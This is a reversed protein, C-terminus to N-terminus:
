HVASFQIGIKGYDVKMYDGDWVVADGRGMTVLDQALVGRYRIKEADTRYNFHYVPFGNERGEYTINEKLRADSAFLAAMAASGATSGMYASGLSGALGYLGGMNANQTNVKNNYANLQSQYQLNIPGMMDTNALQPTQFGAAQPTQVQGGLGLLTAYENIPQSRQLALDSIAQNHAQTGLGFLRNQEAGGAQLAALRFDNEQRGLDDQANRYAESGAMIGQNALKNEQANRARDMLPQNRDMIANVVRDRDATFDNIGPAKPIGDLSFPTRISNEVNGLVNQGLGLARGQLANTLDYQRQQEPSLTTTQTFRPVDKDGVKVTGDQSYTVNGFPTYQNTAGLWGQAIATELNAAGQAAATAAPDPAPPPSPSKKGM